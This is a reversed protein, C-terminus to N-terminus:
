FKRHCVSDAGMPPHSTISYILCSWIIPFRSGVCVSNLTKCHLIIIIECVFSLVSLLVARYICLITLKCHIRLSHIILFLIIFIYRFLFHCVIICSIKRQLKQLFKNLQILKIYVYLIPACMIFMRCNIWFYRLFDVKMFIFITGYQLCNIYIM